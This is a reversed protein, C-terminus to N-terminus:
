RVRPMKWPLMLRTSTTDLRPINLTEHMSIVKEGLLGSELVSRVYFPTDELTQVVKAPVADDSRISRAVRWLAKPLAQRQPAEFESVEGNPHFRLALLREIGSKERIDYLVAVSGDSLNARSWDWETFENVILSEGQNSDLYAHGKWSVAPADLSVEVRASPALPGWHHLQHDDLATVFPFLRDPHVRIVGRVPKPIPVSWEDVHIELWQGNWRLSSPGVHFSTADRSM